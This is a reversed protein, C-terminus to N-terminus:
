KGVCFDQFIKDLVDDGIEEGLLAALHQYSQRLDVECADIAVGARMGYVAQLMSQHAKELLDIQRLNSLAVDNEPAQGLLYERMMAILAEIGEGTLASLAVGGIIPRKPIELTRLFAVASSSLGRDSKNLIVITPKDGTEELLLNERDTWDCSGDFLALILDAEKMRRRSMDVGIAEVKDDTERLGATDILRLAIGDLRYGEEIADRTTGPVDTVIAREERLLANMLSSKGVNPEGVLVARIGDRVLRGHQSDKILSAMAQELREAEQLMPLVPLEEQADEMFNIDYEVKSLLSLIADKLDKIQHSLGGGLQDVAQQQAAESQADIIDHIAEVQLLDIRGNLFARRTFEGRTALRVGHSLVLKLIREVSLRGGHANIEVIDEATYTHPAQMFSVLVEDLTTEGDRIWGYRLKRHDAPTYARGNAAHFITEAVAFADPGSIRVIGIGAEGTSTSIAAITDQADGIGEQHTRNDTM